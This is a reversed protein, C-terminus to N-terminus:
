YNGFCFENIEFEGIEMQDMSTQHPIFYLMDFNTQQNPPDFEIVLQARSVYCLNSVEKILHGGQELLLSRLQISSLRLNMDPKAKVSEFLIVDLTEIRKLYLQFCFEFRYPRASTLPNDLKFVLM